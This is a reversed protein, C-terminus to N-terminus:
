PDLSCRLPAPTTDPTRRMPTSFVGLASFCAGRLARAARTDPAAAPAAPATTVPDPGAPGSAPLSASSRTHNLLPMSEGDHARRRGRRARRHEDRDAERPGRPRARREARTAPRGHVHVWAPTMGGANGDHATAFLVWVGSYMCMSRVRTSFYDHAAFLFRHLLARWRCRTSWFM